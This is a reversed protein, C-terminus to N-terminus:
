EITLLCRPALRKEGFGHFAKEEDVAGVFLANDNFCCVVVLSQSCRCLLCAAEEKGENSDESGHLVSNVNECDALFAFAADAGAECHANNLLIVMVLKKYHKRSQILASPNLLVVIRVETNNAVVLVGHCEGIKVNLVDRKTVVGGSKKFNTGIRWRGPCIINKM